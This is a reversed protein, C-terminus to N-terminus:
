PRSQIRAPESHSQDGQTRPLIILLCVSVATFVLVGILALHITPKAMQDSPGLIANTQPMFHSRIQPFRHRKSALDTASEDLYHWGVGCLIISILSFVSKHLVSDHTGSIGYLALVAGQATILQLFLNWQWQKAREVDEVTVEFLMRIEEQLKEDSSESQSQPPSPQNM